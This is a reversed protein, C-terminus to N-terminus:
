QTPIFDRIIELEFIEADERVITLIIKSGPRGRMLDVSESLTMGLVPM